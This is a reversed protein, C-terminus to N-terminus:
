INIHLNKLGLKRGMGVDMEPLQRVPKDINFHLFNNKKMKITSMQGEIEIRTFPHAIKSFEMRM